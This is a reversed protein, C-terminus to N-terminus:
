DFSGGGEERQKKETHCRIMKTIHVASAVLLIGLALVGTIAMTHLGTQLFNETDGSICYEMTYYIGGGPVLPLLAVILYVTAPTKQVRAFIESYVTIAIASAFYQFIDNSTFGFLLYVLWGVAGGIAAYLATKGRINCLICYPACAAFAYFCPLFQWFQDM